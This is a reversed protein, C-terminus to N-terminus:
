GEKPDLPLARLENRLKVLWERAPSDPPIGAIMEEAFHVVVARMREAGRRKAAELARAVREPAGNGTYTKSRLDRLLEAAEESASASPPATLRAIQDLLWRTLASRDPWVMDNGPNAEQWAKIARQDAAWMLDFTRRLDAIEARAEDLLSLLFACDEERSFEPEIVHPDARIQAEREQDNM